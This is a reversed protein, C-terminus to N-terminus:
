VKGAGFLRGAVKEWTNESTKESSPEQVAAAIPKVPVIEVDSDSLDNRVVRVRDLSLESQVMHKAFRPVTREAAGPRGLKLLSKLKGSYRAFSHSGSPEANRAKEGSPCADERAGDTGTALPKTNAAEAVEARAPEVSVPPGGASPPLEEEATALSGAAETVHVPMEGTSSASSAPVIAAAQAAEPRTTVRFPNKKAGFTPLAGPRSLHYRTEPNGSGVLCRGATLLRLLSM